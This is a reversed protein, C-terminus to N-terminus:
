LKSCIFKFTSNIENKKPSEHPKVETDQIEEESESENKIEEAQAEEAKEKECCKKRRLQSPTKRTFSSSPPPPPPPFHLIDPHGIKASFSMELGGHECSMQFNASEGNMWLRAFQWFSNSAIEIDVM